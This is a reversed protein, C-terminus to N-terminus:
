GTSACMSLQKPHLMAGVAPFNQLYISFGSKLECCGNQGSVYNGCRM